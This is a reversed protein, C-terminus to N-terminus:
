CFSKGIVHVDMNVFINNTTTPSVCVYQRPRSWTSTMFHATGVFLSLRHRLSRTTENVPLFLVTFFVVTINSKFFQKKHASSCTRM